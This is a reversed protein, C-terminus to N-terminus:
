FKTEVDIILKALETKITSQIPFKRKLEGFLVRIKDESATSRWSNSILEDVVLDIAFLVPHPEETRAAKNRRQNSWVYPYLQLIDDQLATPIQGRSDIQSVVMEERGIIPYSTVLVSLYHYGRYWLVAELVGLARALSEPSNYWASKPLLHKKFVWAMISLQADTPRERVLCSSTEISADVEAKSIGPAHREAIDYVREYAFELLAREGLSLETRKQYSEMRSRKANESNDPGEKFKKERVNSDSEATPQVLFRYVAKVVHAKELGRLDALTIRRVCVLALLLFCMDESSVGAVIKELNRPRDSAMQQTYVSLKRFADSELVGTDILLQLAMYEKHDIGHDRRTYSIYEGWIPSITRFFLSLAALKLYDERIYTKERTNGSEPAYDFTAPVDPPMATDADM